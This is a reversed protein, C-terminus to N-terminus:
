YNQRPQSGTNLGIDAQGVELMEDTIQDYSSVLFKAGASKLKEKDEGTLLAICNINASTAATIGNVADEFVVCENPAFGIKEAAKLFIDPAPKSHEVDKNTVIESFYSKLGTKELIMEASDLKNGTAIILRKKQQKMRDLFKKVGPVLGIETRAIIEDYLAKKEEAFQRIQEESIHKGFKAFMEPFICSSGKGAYFYDDEHTYDVGNREFIQRYALYHLGQSLTLTGDLDFILGPATPM